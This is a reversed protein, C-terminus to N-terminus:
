ASSPMRSPVNHSSNLRTSKRDAFPNIGRKDVPLEKFPIGLARIKPEYGDGGAGGGRVDMKRDALAKALGGRFNFFTWSCRSVLFARM